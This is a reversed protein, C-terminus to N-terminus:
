KKAAAASAAKEAAKAEKAAKKEAKAKKAEELTLGKAHRHMVTSPRENKRFALMQDLFYHQDLGALVPTEALSNGQPGHCAACSAALTQIHSSAQEANAQVASMFFAWVALFFRIKQSYPSM